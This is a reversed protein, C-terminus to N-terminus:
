DGLYCRDPLTGGGVDGWQHHDTDQQQLNADGVQAQTGATYAGQHLVQLIPGRSIPLTNKNINFHKSHQDSKSGSSGPVLIPKDTMFSKTNRMPETGTHISGRTCTQDPRTQPQKHPKDARSAAPTNQQTKQPKFRRDGLGLESKRTEFCFSNWVATEDMPKWDLDDDEVFILTKNGDQTEASM